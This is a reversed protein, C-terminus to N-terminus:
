GEVTKVTQVATVIVVVVSDNAFLSAALAKYNYTFIAYNVADFICKFRCSCCKDRAVRAEVNTYHKV